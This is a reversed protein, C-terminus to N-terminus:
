HDLLTDRGRAAELSLNGSDLLLQAWLGLCKPWKGAKCLGTHLYEGTLLLQCSKGDEEGGWGGGWGGTGPAWVSSHVQAPDPDKCSPLCSFAHMM